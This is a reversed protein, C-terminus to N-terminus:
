GSLLWRLYGTGDAYTPVDGPAAVRKRTFTDVPIPKRKRGGPHPGSEVFDGEFYVHASSKEHNDRVHKYSFKKGCGAFGCAYPRSQEHVAKIHKDLNSKKSFSCKCDEFHCKVTEAVRSGEHMRQHRKFNKKLQKTDCVDCQVYRHCSQNHAKLCEVNTFTKMCGPECCIVETYELKAHSDEHKQLKSAFKFAKGCNVEPCIFEKKSECPSGDKHMEQVHRQMNGRTSFKRNCGEMPCIFLKGQHTLLHRNLHDKRSYSFPCGDVHCAFPRQLLVHILCDQHLKEPPDGMGISTWELGEQM